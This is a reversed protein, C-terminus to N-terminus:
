MKDCKNPMVNNDIKPIPRWANLGIVVDQEPMLLEREQMEQKTNKTISLADKITTIIVLRQM